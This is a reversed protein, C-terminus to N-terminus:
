EDELHHHLMPTNNHFFRHTLQIEHHGLLPEASMIPLVDGGTAYADFRHEFMHMSHALYNAM